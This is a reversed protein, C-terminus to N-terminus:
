PWAGPVIVLQGDWTRVVPMPLLDTEAGQDSRGDRDWTRGDPCSFVEGDWALDCPPQGERARAIRAPYGVRSGDDGVVIFFAGPLEPDDSEVRTISGAPFREQPGLVYEYRSYPTATGEPPTPLPEITFSAVAADAARRDDDTTADGFWALAEYEITNAQWRGYRDPGEWEPAGLAAPMGWDDRDTFGLAALNPNVAVLAGGATLQTTLEDFTAIAGRDMGSAAENVLWIEGFDGFNGRASEDPEVKTLVSWGEPIDMSWGLAENTYTRGMPVDDQGAFARLVFAGAAAAILLAVV